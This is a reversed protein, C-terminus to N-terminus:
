EYPINNEHDTLMTTNTKVVTPQNKIEELNKQFQLMLNKIQGAESKIREKRAQSKQKQKKRHKPTPM